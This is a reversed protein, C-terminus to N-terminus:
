TMNGTMGNRICRNVVKLLHPNELAACVREKDALQKNVSKESQHTGPEISVAVKFRSPLSRLLKVKISLGILTAMSCHPVTPTFRVHLTSCSGESKESSPKDLLDVVNIQERSVVGLQELTLPHEPDQINRVIGFIEDVTLRDRELENSSADDIEMANHRELSLSQYSTSFHSVDHVGSAVLNSDDCTLRDPIVLGIKKLLLVGEGKTAMSVDTLARLVTRDVPDRRWTDSRLTVGKGENEVDLFQECEENGATEQSTMLAEIEWWGIPPKTSTSSRRSTDIPRVVPNENDKFTREM